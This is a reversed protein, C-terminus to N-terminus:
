LSNSKWGNLLKQWFNSRSNIKGTNSHKGSIGTNKKELDRTLVNLAHSLTLLAAIIIGGLLLWIYTLPEFFMEPMFGKRGSKLSDGVSSVQAWVPLFFLIITFLLFSFVYKM